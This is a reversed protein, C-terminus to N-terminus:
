WNIFKRRERNQERNEGTEVVFWEKDRSRSFTIGKEKPTQKARYRDKWKKERKPNKLKKKKQSDIGHM